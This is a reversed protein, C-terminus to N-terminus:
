GYEIYVLGQTPRKMATKCAWFRSERELAGVRGPGMDADVEGRGLEGVGAAGGMRGAVGMWAGRGQM